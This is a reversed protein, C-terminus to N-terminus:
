KEPEPKKGASRLNVLKNLTDFWFPAGVSVALVSILLGIIKLLWDRPACPVSAKTWGIPIQTESLKVSLSDIRAIGSRIDNVIEATQRTTDTAPIGEKIEEIRQKFEADNVAKAAEDALSAAVAPHDYLYKTLLISDANFGTVVFVSIILIWTQVKKKYRGGIRDMADNFWVELDKRVKSLEGKAEQISQLIFRKTQIPLLETKEVAQRLSDIDFPKDGNVQSNITDLLVHSFKDAPIYSPKCSRTLSEIIRHNLIQKGLDKEKFSSLLWNRLNKFRLNFFGSLIEQVTSSVLSLIFYIFILGIVLDLIQLGFM